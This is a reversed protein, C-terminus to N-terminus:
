LGYGALKDLEAWILKLKPEWKGGRNILCAKFFDYEKVYNPSKGDKSLEGFRMNALRDCLKVAIANPYHVMESLTKEHREERNWGKHDTVYYVAEAVERGFLMVIDKPSTATDELADHLWTALLIVRHNLGFEKAVGNVQYLHFFYPFEGYKQKENHREQVFKMAEAEELLFPKNLM